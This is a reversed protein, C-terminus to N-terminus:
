INERPVLIKKLVQSKGLFDKEKELIVKDDRGKIKSKKQWSKNSLAKVWMIASFVDKQRWM